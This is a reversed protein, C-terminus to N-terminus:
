SCVKEGTAIEQTGLTEALSHEASGPRLPQQQSAHPAWGTLFIVEFSATIKGQDDSYHKKYYEQASEFLHPHTLGKSRSTIINGQGMGRLDQFLKQINPYSVRVIDSDVVPLAFGARQMLGGMQQKDAFPCVRPAAGGNLSLETQMLSDRLEYLTEGGLMAGLFLGDPKLAYNTQILAGPLDNTMHLSLNSIILDLTNQGFPFYEEDGIIDAQDTHDLILANDTLRPTFPGIQVCREFSRTIDNLRDKLQEGAWRYLFDYEQINRKAAQRRKALLSRDFIDTQQDQM